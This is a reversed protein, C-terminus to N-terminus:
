RTWYNWASHPVRLNKAASELVRWRDRDRVVDIWEMGGWGVEQLNIKINDKLNDRQRLDAWCLATHVKLYLDLLM